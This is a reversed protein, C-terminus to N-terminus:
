AHEGCEARPGDGGTEDPASFQCEELFVELADPEPADHHLQEDDAPACAVVHGKCVGDVVGLGMDAVFPELDRGVIDAPNDGFDAHERAVVRDDHEAAGRRGADGHAVEAGHEVSALILSGSVTTSVLSRM